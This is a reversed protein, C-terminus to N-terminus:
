SFVVAIFFFYVLKEILKSSSVCYGLIPIPSMTTIKDIVQKRDKATKSQKRRLFLKLRAFSTHREHAWRIMSNGGHAQWISWM